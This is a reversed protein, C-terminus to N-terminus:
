LLCACIRCLVIAGLSCSLLNITGAKAVLHREQPLTDRVLAKQIKIGKWALSTRVNIKQSLMSKISVAFFLITDHVMKYPFRCLVSEELLSNFM